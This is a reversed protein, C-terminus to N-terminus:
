PKTDMLAELRSAIIEAANARKSVNGIHMEGSRDTLEALLADRYDIAVKICDAIAQVRTRDIALGIARVHEPGLAPMGGATRLAKWVDLIPGVPAEVLEDQDGSM